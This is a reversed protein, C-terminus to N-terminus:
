LFLVARAPARLSVKLFSTRLLARRRLLLQPLLSPLLRALLLMSMLMELALTRLPQLLQLKVHRQSLLPLELAPVSEPLLIM